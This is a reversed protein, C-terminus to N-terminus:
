QSQQRQRLVKLMCRSRLKFMGRELEMLYPSELYTESLYHFKNGALEAIKGCTAVLSTNGSRLNEAKWNIEFKGNIAELVSKKVGFFSGRVTLHKFGLSPKWDSHNYYASHTEGWDNYGNANKSNGIINIDKTKFIKLCENVLEYNKVLIDDHMFFVYDFQKWLGLDLWQQYAGWDFGKNEFESIKFGAKEVMKKFAEVKKKHSSVYLSTVGRIKAIEQYVSLNYHWGVVIIATKVV